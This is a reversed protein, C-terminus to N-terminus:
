NLYQKAIFEIKENYDKNIKSNKSEKILDTFM